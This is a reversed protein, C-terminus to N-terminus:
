LVGAPDNFGRASKNCLRNFECYRCNNSYLRKDFSQWDYNDIRDIKSEILKGYEKRDRSDCTISAIIGPPEPQWYHMRIPVGSKVHMSLVPDNSRAAFEGALYIYVKTQLSKELKRRAAGPEPQVESNHTKWDWIEIGESNVVILDAIAQLRIKGSRLVISYEPLYMNKDDPVFYQKLNQFWIVLSNDANEFMYPDPEIGLFYRKALLHFSKGRELAKKQELSAASNWGLREIYRYRFMVPCKDFADLSQQSYLFKQPLMDYTSM